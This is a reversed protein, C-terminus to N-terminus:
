KIKIFAIIKKVDSISGEFLLDKPVSIDNGIFYIEGNDYECITKENFSKTEILYFGEDQLKNTKIFEIM